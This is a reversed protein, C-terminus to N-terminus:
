SAGAFVGVYEPPMDDSRVVRMGLWYWKRRDDADIHFDAQNRVTCIAAEAKFGLVVIFGLPRHCAMLARKERIATERIEQYVM